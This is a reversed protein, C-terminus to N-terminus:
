SLTGCLPPFLFVFFLKKCFTHRNACFYPHRQTYGYYKNTFVACVSFLFKIFRTYYEVILFFLATCVPM